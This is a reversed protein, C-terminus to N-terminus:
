IDEMPNIVIKFTDYGLHSPNKPNRFLVSDKGNVVEVAVFEPYIYRRSLHDNLVSDMVAMDFGIYKDMITQLQKSMADVM